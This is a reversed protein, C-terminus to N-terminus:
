RPREMKGYQGQATALREACDRNEDFVVWFVGNRLLIKATCVEDSSHGECVAVVDDADITLDGPDRTADHCCVTFRLFM